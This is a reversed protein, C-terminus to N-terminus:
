CCCLVFQFAILSLRCLPVVWFSHPSAIAGGDRFAELWWSSSAGDPRIHQVLSLPLGDRGM